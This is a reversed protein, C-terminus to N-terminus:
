PFMRAQKPESPKPVELMFFWRKTHTDLRAVISLGGVIVRSHKRLYTSLGKVTPPGKPFLADVAAKLAAKQQEQPNPDDADGGPGALTHLQAASFAQKFDVNKYDRCAALLAGLDGSAPDGQAIEAQSAIPDSENLWLLAARVIRNWEPFRTGSLEKFGPCGAVIHARMVTLAAVVLEVRHEPVWVKLDRDFTREEPREVGADIRCLLARPVMDDAFQLGNGTAFVCCNNPLEPNGTKGLLRSKPRPSTIMLDLFAGEVPRECNDLICITDGAQLVGVLRKELEEENWGLSMETAGRGTTAYAPVQAGLTKGHSMNPAHFGHIPVTPLAGRGVVTLFSSLAVSRSSCPSGREDTEKDLVFPFDKYVDKLKALGALADDKSPNDPINFTPGGADLYLGTMGDYGPQSLVSGDPRLTPCAIIGALV